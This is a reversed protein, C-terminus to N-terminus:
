RVRVAGRRRVHSLAAVAGYLLPGYTYEYVRCMRVSSCYGYLRSVVWM